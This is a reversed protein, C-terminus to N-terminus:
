LSLTVGAMWVGTTTDFQTMENNTMTTDAHEYDVFLSGGAVVANLRYEFGGGILWGTGDAAYAANAAQLQPSVSTRQLGGRLFADFNDGLPFSYKLAAALQTGDAQYSNMFMGYRAASGEISLRGFRYGVLLKGSRGSASVTQAESGTTTTTASMDPATGIGLGLYTGANAAAGTAAVLAVALVSRLMTGTDLMGRAM